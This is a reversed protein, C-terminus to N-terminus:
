STISNIVEKTSVILSTGTDVIGTIESNTLIPRNNVLVSDLKITWYGTDM